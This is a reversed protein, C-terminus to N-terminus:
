VHRLKVACHVVSIATRAPWEALTSDEWRKRSSQSTCSEEQGAQESEANMEKIFNGCCLDLPNTFSVFGYGKTKGTRKDRVVKAM